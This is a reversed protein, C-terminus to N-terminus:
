NAKLNDRDIIFKLQEVLIQPTSTFSYPTSILTIGQNNRGVARYQKVTPTYNKEEIEILFDQYPFSTPTSEIKNQNNIVTTVLPSFNAVNVVTNNQASCKKLLELIKNITNVTDTLFANFINISILIGVLPASIQPIRPNGNNDFLTKQRLSDLADVAGVVQGPLGPPPIAQIILTAISITINLTDIIQKTTKLATTSSNVTQNLRDINSVQSNIDQVFNNLIPVVSNIVDPSPCTSPLSNIDTINLKQLIPTLTSTAKNSLDTAKDLIIKRIKNLGKQSLDEGQNQTLIGVIKNIDISSAM